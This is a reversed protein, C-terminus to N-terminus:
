ASGSAEAIRKHPRRLGSMREYPGRRHNEPQNPHRNEEMERSLANSKMPAFIGTAAVVAVVLVVGGDSGGDGGGGGGAIGGSWAIHEEVLLRVFQGAHLLPENTGAHVFALAIEGQGLPHHRCWRGSPLDPGVQVLPLGELRQM